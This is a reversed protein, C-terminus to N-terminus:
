PKSEANGSVLTEFGPTSGPRWLLTVSRSSLLSSPQLSLFQPLAQSLKIKKVGTALQIAIFQSSDPM